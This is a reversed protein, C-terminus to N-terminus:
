DSEAIATPSQVSIVGKPAIVFGLVGLYVAVFLVIAAYTKAQRGQPQAVHPM